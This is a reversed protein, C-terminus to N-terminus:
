GRPAKARFRVTKDPEQEEGSDDSEPADGGSRLGAEDARSGREVRLHPHRAARDHSVSPDERRAGDSPGDMEDRLAQSRREADDREQAAREARERHHAAEREAAERAQTERRLEKRMDAVQATVQKEVERRIAEAAARQDEPDQSEEAPQRNLPDQNVTWDLAERPATSGAGQDAEGSPKARKGDDGLAGLPETESRAGESSRDASPASDRSAEEGSHRSEAYSAGEHAEHVGARSGPRATESEEIAQLAQTVEREYQARVTALAARNKASEALARDLHVKMLTRALEKKEKRSATLRPPLRNVRLHGAGLAVLTFGLASGTEILVTILVALGSRVEAPTYGLVGSITEAQPDTRAGIVKVGRLERRTEILQRELRDADEAIALEKRLDLVRQCAVLSEPITVDTCQSTRRWINRPVDANEIAARVAGAPRHAPLLAIRSQLRDARQTLAAREKNTADRTEITTDRTTTAFGMASAISWAVCLCWIGLAAASLLTKRARWLGIAVFPLLAKFGDATASALGYLWPDIPGAGLTMGFRFNMIASIVFMVSAVSLGVLLVLNKGIWSSIEIRGTELTASEPAIAAEGARPPRANSQEPPTAGDRSAVM